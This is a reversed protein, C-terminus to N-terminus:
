QAKVWEETYVCSSVQGLNGSIQSDQLLPSMGLSLTLPHQLLQESSPLSLPVSVLTIRTNWISSCTSGSWPSQVLGLIRQGYPQGFNTLTFYCANYNRFAQLTREWESSCVPKTLPHFLHSAMTVTGKKINQM